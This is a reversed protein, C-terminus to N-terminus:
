AYNVFSKIFNYAIESHKEKKLDQKSIKCVVMWEHNDFEIVESNLIQVLIRRRRYKREQNSGLGNNIRSIAGERALKSINKIIYIYKDDELAQSLELQAFFGGLKTYSSGLCLHVDPIRYEYGWDGINLFLDYDKGKIKLSYKNENILLREKMNPFRNLNEADIISSIIVEIDLTDYKLEISKDINSQMLINKILYATDINILRM